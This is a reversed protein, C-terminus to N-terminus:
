YLNVTNVENLKEVYKEIINLDSITAAKNTTIIIEKSNSCIYDASINSKVEKLLRNINAIYINLKAIVRESNITNILIIIQKRSPDKTMMNIKPKRKKTNDLVKYIESVKQSSLKLFTEKIKM